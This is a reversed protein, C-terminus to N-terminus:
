DKLLQNLSDLSKKRKRPLAYVPEPSVQNHLLKDINENSNKDDYSSLDNVRKALEELSSVAEKPTLWKMRLVAEIVYVIPWYRVTNFLLDAHEGLIKKIVNEDISNILEIEDIRQPRLCADDIANKNNATLVLLKVNKRIYAITELMLTVHDDRDFDDLIICDPKFIDIVDFLIKSDNGLDEVRVRFSRLNLEKAIQRAMTSKGTGPPGYLLISRNVGVDFAKRFKNSIETAKASPLAEVLTDEDFQLKVKDNNRNSNNQRLVLSTGGFKRWLFDQLIKKVVEFKGTEFYMYGFISTYKVVWGIKIGHTTVIKILSRDDDYPVTIEFPDDKIAEELFSNLAEFRLEEWSGGYEFFTDCYTRNDDSLVSITGIIATVCSILGPKQFFPTVKDLLESTTSIVKQTKADCVFNNIKGLLTTKNKQDKNILKVFDENTRRYKKIMHKGSYIRPDEPIGDRYTIYNM